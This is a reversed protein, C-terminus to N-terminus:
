TKLLLQSDSHTFQFSPIGVSWRWHHVERCSPEMAEGASVMVNPDLKGTGLPGLLICKENLVGGMHLIMEICACLM